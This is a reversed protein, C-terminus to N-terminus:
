GTKWASQILGTLTYIKGRSQFRAEFKEQSPDFHASIQGRAPVEEKDECGQGGDPRSGLAAQEENGWSRTGKGAEQETV